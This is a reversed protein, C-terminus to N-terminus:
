LFMHFFVEHKLLIFFPLHKLTQQIFWHKYSAKYLKRINEVNAIVDVHKQVISAIIIIKKVNKVQSRIIKHM